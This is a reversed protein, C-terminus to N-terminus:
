ETIDRRVRSVHRDWLPFTQRAEAAATDDAATQLVWQHCAVCSTPPHTRPLPFTSHGFFHVWRSALM